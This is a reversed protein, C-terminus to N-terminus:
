ETYYICGFDKGTVIHDPAIIAGSDHGYWDTPWQEVYFHGDGSYGKNCCERFENGGHKFAILKSWHKCTKCKM